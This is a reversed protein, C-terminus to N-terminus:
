FSKLFKGIFPIEVTVGDKIFSHAEPILRIGVNISDNQLLNTKMLCNRIMLELLELNFPAQVYADAGSGMSKYIEDVSDTMMIISSIPDNYRIMRVVDAYQIGPLLTSIIYHSPKKLSESHLFDEANFYHNVVEEPFKERILDAAQFGTDILTIKM